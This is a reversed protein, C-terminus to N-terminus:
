QKQSTATLPRCNCQKLSIDRHFSSYYLSAMLHFVVDLYYQYQIM